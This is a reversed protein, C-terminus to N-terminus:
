GSAAMAEVLHYAGIRRGGRRYATCLGAAESIEEM